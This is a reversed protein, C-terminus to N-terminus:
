KSPRGQKYKEVAFGILAFSLFIIIGVGFIKSELSTYVRNFIDFKSISTFTGPAVVINCGTTDAAGFLSGGFVGWAILTRKLGYKKAKEISNNGHKIILVLNGLFFSFGGFLGLFILINDSLTYPLNSPFITQIAIILGPFVIMRQLRTLFITVLVFILFAMFAAVKLRNIDPLSLVRAGTDAWFCNWKYYLAYIFGLLVLGLPVVYDWKTNDRRKIEFWGLKLISGGVL